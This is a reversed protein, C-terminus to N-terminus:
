IGSLFQNQFKRRVDLATGKQSAELGGCGTRGTLCGVRALRGEKLGKM